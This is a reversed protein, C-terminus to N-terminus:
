FTCLKRVVGDISAHPLSQSTPNLNIKELLRLGPFRKKGFLLYRMTCILTKMKKYLVARAECPYCLM